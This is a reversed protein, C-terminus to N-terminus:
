NFVFKEDTVLPHPLDLMHHVIFSSATKAVLLSLQAIRVHNRFEKILLHLEIVVLVAEM